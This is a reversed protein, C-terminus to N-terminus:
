IKVVGSSIIKRIAEEVDMVSIDEICYPKNHPSPKCEKFFSQRCPSCSYSKTVVVRKEKAIYPGTTMMNGPGFIGVIPTGMMAALHMMGSDNGVFLKCRRMASAIEQLNRSTLKLASNPPCNKEIKRIIEEDEPGGLILIKASYEKILKQCLIGYRESHWRRPFKSGGPHLAVVFDCPSARLQDFSNDLLKDLSLPIFSQFTPAPGDLGLPELIQFFYDVRYQTKSHPSSYVPHTLFIGRCDTSYGFRTRAGSLYLLLGSRFSNSFVVGFDFRYKRLRLAFRVQEFFGASKVPPVQLITDVAPHGILLERAPAKLALTIRANPFRKRLSQVVPLVMIVDGIWNPMWLLLNFFEKKEIPETYSMKM